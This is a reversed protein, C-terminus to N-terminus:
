HRPTYRGRSRDRGGPTRRAHGTETQHKPAANREGGHSPMEERVSPAERRRASPRREHITKRAAPPTKKKGGTRKIIFIIVAAAAAAAAATGLIKVAKRRRQARLEQRRQEELRQEEERRLQEQREQEEKERQQEEEAQRKEEEAQKKEAAEKEKTFTELKEDLKLTYQEFLSAMDAIIGDSVGMYETMVTLIFPNPTYIIGTTNNFEKFAGYKQAIEYKGALRRNFYSDPQALKLCEIVNPFRDSEYYLTKMVDTMFEATFYSYDYFDENYDEKAMDSFQQYLERCKRDGDHTQVPTGSLYNMAHHAYDNNSYVLVKTELDALSIGNIDSDQTLEGKSVKDAYVMFLPVKYMSASYYWKGGNYFWTDGTATYCYGISINEPCLNNEAIYKEMLKQLEDPDIISMGSKDEAASAAPGTVLVALILTLATLGKIAHWIRKM